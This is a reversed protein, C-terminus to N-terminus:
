SRCYAYNWVLGTLKELTELLKDGPVAEGEHVGWINIWARGFGLRHRWNWEYAKAQLGCQVCERMEGASTLPSYWNSNAKGCKPCRPSVKSTDQIVTIEPTAAPFEVYYQNPNNDHDPDDAMSVTPSCGLFILLTMFREGPHYINADSAPASGILGASLLGDFLRKRDPAQSEADDPFLVLRFKNM